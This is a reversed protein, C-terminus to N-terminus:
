RGHRLVVIPELCHMFALLEEPEVSDHSVVDVIAHDEKHLNTVSDANGQQTFKKIVYVEVTFGARARFRLGSRVYEYQMTCGLQNLLDPAGQGMAVSTLQRREVPQSVRRDPIGYTLLLFELNAHRTEQPGAKLIRRRLRIANKPVGRVEPSPSYVRDHDRFEGLHGVEPCLARILFVVRTLNSVEITGRVLTETVTVQPEKTTSSSGGAPPTM